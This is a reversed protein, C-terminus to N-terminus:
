NDNDILTYVDKKRRFCVNRVVIATVLLKRKISDTTHIRICLIKQDNPKLKYEIM